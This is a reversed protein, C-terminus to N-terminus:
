DNKNFATTSNSKHDVREKCLMALQKCIDQKNTMLALPHKQPQNDKLNYKKKSSDQKQISNIGNTPLIAVKCQNDQAEVMKTLKRDIADLKEALKEENPSTYISVWKEIFSKTFSGIVFGM